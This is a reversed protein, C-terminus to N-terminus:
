YSFAETYHTIDRNLPCVYMGEETPKQILILLISIREGIM